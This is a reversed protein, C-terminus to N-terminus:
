AKDEDVSLSSPPHFRIWEPYWEDTVQIRCEPVEAELVRLLEEMYIRYGEENLHLGDYFLRGLEVSPVTRSSGPLIGEVATDQWNATRMMATWLDVVPVNEQKGIDRIADAYMAVRDARGQGDHPLRYEEVPSPTVLLVKTKHLKVGEWNLIRRVNTKFTDLDCHQPEGPSCSDNAGFHVTMAAVRPVTKSPALAPFFSPLLTLASNTNYGGFGRNLVDIRRVYRRALESQLSFAGQTISDGFLLLHPPPPLSAVQAALESPLQYSQANM